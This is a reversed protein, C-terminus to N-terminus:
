EGPYGLRDKMLKWLEGRVKLLEEFEPTGPIDWAPVKRGRYKKIPSKAKIVAIYSNLQEETAM